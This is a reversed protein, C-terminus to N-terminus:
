DVEIQLVYVSPNCGLLLELSSIAVQGVQSWNVTSNGGAKQRPHDEVHVTAPPLIAEGIAVEPLFSVIKM